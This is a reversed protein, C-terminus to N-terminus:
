GQLLRLVNQPLQNAQAIMATGAQQLIQTRSLNATEAAFDADMIRGRAAQQKEIGVRLNTMINEFRSMYAGLEARRAVIKQIAGDLAVLLLSASTADATSAISFGASMVSQLFSTQSLATLGTISVTQGGRAGVQFVYNSSFTSTDDYLVARGNFSTHRAIRDLENRLQVFEQNINAREATGNTGNAARLALDRMRQLVDTVTSLAGDIVEVMSLADATNQLAVTMGRAQSNMREAIGLGAADDKATNVRLGSSLRAMTTQLSQMNNITNRQANLSMVNTNITLAM